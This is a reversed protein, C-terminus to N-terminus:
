FSYGVKFGLDPRWGFYSGDFGVSFGLNLEILWNSRYVRRLGWSPSMSVINNTRMNHTYFGPTYYQFDVAFFNGSNDKLSKGKRERKSLNYYHRFDAGVVGRLSAFWSDYHINGDDYVFVSSSSFGLEGAVGGHFVVTTTRGLPLEYNYQLGLINLGVSQTKETSTQASLGVASLILCVLVICRKMVM